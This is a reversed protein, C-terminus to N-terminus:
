LHNFINKFNNYEKTNVVIKKYQESGMSKQKNKNSVYKYLAGYEKEAKIITDFFNWGKTNDYTKKLEEQIDCIIVEKHGFCTTKGEIILDIQSNRLEAVDFTLGNLHAYASNKNVKVIAKM